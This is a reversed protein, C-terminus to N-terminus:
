GPGLTFSPFRYVHRSTDRLTWGTLVRKTTGTNTIRVWEQDLSSNSGTDSGPSDYQVRSIRVPSSAEAQGATLPLLTPLVATAVAVVCRTIVRMIFTGGSLSLENGRHCRGRM